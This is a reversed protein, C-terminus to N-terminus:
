KYHKRLERSLEVIAMAYHVSNNYKMIVKFNHLGTYYITKNEAYQLTLLKGEKANSPKNKRIIKHNTKWGHQKLYYAVSGLVDDTNHLLDRQGKGSFDIAYAKYNSPMFQPMGIAGAYSGKATNLDLAGEHDLLLAHELEKKFFPARRPYDFALTSLSELLPYHGMDEGYSTEIGIISVIIEPPVGFKKQITKLTQQNKKLFLVGEQIRKPTILRARYRYWPQAEFQKDMLTLITKNTKFKKFLGTLHAQNLGHKTHMHVIFQQVVRRDAFSLNLRHAPETPTTNEVSHATCFPISFVFLLSLLIASM